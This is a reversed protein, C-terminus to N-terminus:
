TGEFLAVQYCVICLGYKDESQPGHILPAGCETCRGYVRLLHHAGTILYRADSTKITVLGSPSVRRVTAVDHISTPRGQVEKAVVVEMGAHIRPAVNVAPPPQAVNANGM